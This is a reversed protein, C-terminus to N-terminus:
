RKIYYNENTCSFGDMVMQNHIRAKLNAQLLAAIEQQKKGMAGRSTNTRYAGFELSYGRGWKFLRGYVIINEFQATSRGSTNINIQM